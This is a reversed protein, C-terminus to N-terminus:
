ANNQSEPRSLLGPPLWCTECLWFTQCAGWDQVQTSGGPESTDAPTATKSTWPFLIVEERSKLM